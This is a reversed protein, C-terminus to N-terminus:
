GLWETDTQARERVRAARLHQYHTAMKLGIYKRQCFFKKTAESETKSRALMSEHQVLSRLM